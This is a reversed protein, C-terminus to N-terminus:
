KWISHWYQNPPEDLHHGFPSQAIYKPPFSIIFKLVDRDPVMNIRFEHHAPNAIRLHKEVHQIQQLDEPSVQSISTDYGCQSHNLHAYLWFFHALLDPQHIYNFSQTFTASSRDWRIFIASRGCISLTFTHVHFQSGM